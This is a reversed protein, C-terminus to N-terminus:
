GDLWAETYADDDLLWSCRSCPTGGDRASVLCAPHPKDVPMPDPRRPVIYLGTRKSEALHQAALKRRQKADAETSNFRYPHASPAPEEAAHPRAKAQGGEARKVDAIVREIAPKTPLIGEAVIRLAITDCVDDSLHRVDIGLASCLNL